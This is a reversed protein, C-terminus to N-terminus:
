WHNLIHAVLIELNKVRKKLANINIFTADQKNRKKKRKPKM